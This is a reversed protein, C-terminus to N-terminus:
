IGGLYAAIAAKVKPDLDDYASVASNISSVRNKWWDGNSRDSFYLDVSAVYPAIEAPVHDTFTEFVDSPGTPDGKAYATKIRHLPTICIARGKADVLVAFTEARTAVVMKDTWAETELIVTGDRYFTVHGKAGRYDGLKTRKGGEVKGEQPQSYAVLFTALLLGIAM